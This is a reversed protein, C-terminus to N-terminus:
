FLKSKKSNNIHSFVYELNSSVLERPKKLIGISYTNNRYKDNAKMIISEEDRFRRKVSEDTFSKLTMTNELWSSMGCMNNIPIVEFTQISLEHRRCHADMLMQDSMISFLKQIRQDQRLDEGYKVLFNYFKGNDGYIKIKVPKRLSEFIQVFASFHTIKVHSMINPKSKGTYQGPIELQNQDCNNHLKFNDLWHSLNSLKMEKYRTRNTQEILTTRFERLKLLIVKREINADLDSLSKLKERFPEIVKYIDASKADNMEFVVDDIRKLEFLYDEKPILEDFATQCLFKDFRDLHHKLKVIPLCLNIIGKIFNDTTNNTLKVKIKNVLDRPKISKTHSQLSFYQEYSLKFPYTLASPYSESLNLLLEDLFCIIGFDFHSLIQPIWELFMWHPVTTSEIKFTNILDPDTQLRKFQLITPLLTRAEISNYKM